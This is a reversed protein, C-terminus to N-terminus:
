FTDSMRGDFQEVVGRMIAFSLRRYIWVHAEWDAVQAHLRYHQVVRGLLEQAERGFSGFVSSGFPVFDFGHSHCISAHKDRNGQGVVSLASTADRRGNHAPSVGVLDVCCHHDGRWAYLLIDAPKTLGSGRGSAPADERSFRLHAPEMSHCIGAQRLLTSFTHLVLRHRLQFGASTPQRCCLFAHDGFIDM